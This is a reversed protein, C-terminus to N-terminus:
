RSVKHWHEVFYLLEAGDLMQNQNLDEIGHLDGAGIVRWNQALIFLDAWDVVGDGNLDMPVSVWLNPLLGTHLPNNRYMPWASITTSFGAGVIDWARIRFNSDCFIVEPEDDGDFDGVAPCTTISASVQAFPVPDAGPAGFADSLDGRLAYVRGEDTAVIIEQVGDSVMESPHALDAAVPSVYIHQNNPLRRSATITGAADVVTVTGDMAAAVIFRENPNSFTTVIPSAKLGSTLTVPFGPLVEGASSVAYLERGLTGFVIELGPSDSLDCVAPSGSVTTPVDLPFGALPIGEPSVVVLRDPQTATKPVLMIIEAESDGNVDAVAPSSYLGAGGIPITQITGNSSLVIVINGAGDPVVIDLKGDGNFDHLAASASVNPQVSAFAVRSASISGDRRYFRGQTDLVYIAGDFAVIVIELGEDGVVDGVAPSSQVKEGITVPFGPLALGDGKLGYLKGDDCGVFLESSGDGTVDALTPCSFILNGTAVPFNAKERTVHVVKVTGASVVTLPPTNVGDDVIAYLYYTGSPVLNLRWLYRTMTDESLGDAILVGGSPSPVTNYYLSISANNERDHAAWVIEFIDSYQGGTELSPSVFSFTPRDNRVVVSGNSYSRTEPYLLPDRPVDSDRIVGFVRYRGTPVNRVNWIYTDTEDDESINDVILTGVFDDRESYYLAIQADNDPDSDAWTIRVNYNEDPNVPESPELMQITPVENIIPNLAGTRISKTSKGTSYILSVDPAMYVSFADGRSVNKSTRIVVYYDPGLDSGLDTDPIPMATSNPIFDVKFAGPIGEYAYNSLSPAAALSVLQDFPDFEGVVSLPNGEQHVDRYLAVGSNADRTLDALDAPTFGEGQPLFVVSVNRIFENRGAIPSGDLDNRGDWVNIGIVPKKPGQDADEIRTNMQTLDLLQTPISGSLINTLVQEKGYPKVAASGKMHNTSLQVQFKDDFSLNSSPRLVLFYDIGRNSYNATDRDDYPVRIDRSKPRLTLRYTDGVKVIDEASTRVLEIQTDQADLAGPVIGDDFYLGVGSYQGGSLSLLDSKTPDISLQFGGKDVFEVVFEHIYEHSFEAQYAEPSSESHEWIDMNWGLVTLPIRDSASFQEVRQNRFTLDVLENFVDVVIRMPKTLLSGHSSGPYHNEDFVSGYKTYTVAGSNVRFQFELGNPVLHNTRITVFMDDGFLVGENDNPIQIYHDYTACRYNAGTCPCRLPNESSLGFGMGTALYSGSATGGCGPGVISASNGVVPWEAARWFLAGYPEENNMDSTPANGPSDCYHLEANRRLIMNFTVRFGPEGTLDEVIPPTAYVSNSATISPFTYNRRYFPIYDDEIDWAGNVLGAPDGDGCDEDILGDDDDDQNNRIEEDRLSGWWYGMMDDSDIGDGEETDDDMFLAVGSAFDGFVEDKLRDARIPRFHEPRVPMNENPSIIDFSVTRLVWGWHEGNALIANDAGYDHMDIGFVPTTRSEIGIQTNTIIDHFAFFPKPRTVLSHIREGYLLDSTNTLIRRTRLDGQDGSILAVRGAMPRWSAGPLWDGDQGVELRFTNGDKVRDSTRIVVFYDAGVNGPSTDDEPLPQPTEPTLVVRWSASGVADTSSEWRINELIVLQDRETGDFVGDTTGPMDRYLAVGSSVQNRLLPNLMDPSFNKVDAFDVTVEAIAYSHIRHGWGNIGLIATPPSQQLIPHYEPSPWWGPTVLYNPPDTFNVFKIVDGYVVKSTNSSPYDEEFYELAVPAGSISQDIAKIGGAPIDVKFADDHALISSTRIVIFFDFLGDDTAAPLVAADKYMPPDQDIELTVEFGSEETLEQWSISSLPVMIDVEGESGTPNWDFGGRTPGGTDRYLAVGSEDDLTLSALDDFTLRGTSEDQNRFRVTIQQLRAVGSPYMLDLGVVAIPESSPMVLDSEPYRHPVPTPTPTPPIEEDLRSLVNYLNLRGGGLKGAHIPNLADINDAFHSVRELLEANRIGPSAGLIVAAAGAVVPCAMSTGSMSDYLSSFGFEPFMPVTSLINVGPASVDVYKSSYNSFYALYDNRDTAAVGLVWNEGPPGDNCVPSLPYTDLDIGNNGAACIININRRNLDQFVRDVAATYGGGLSLNIVNAGNDACYIIGDLIISYASGGDDSFIQATMIKGRWSVGTVGLANNSIAAAIGAVHTGHEINDDPYGDGDDDEGDPEPNVDPNNNIFDWGHIDDIYGNNDDDIGNGPIEGPNVWLRGALDPHSTFTGSDVVGIIVDSHGYGIDWAEECRIRPLHYQQSYLPDNPVIAKSYLWDPTALEVSPNQKLQQIKVQVSAGDEIHYLAQGYQLWVKGVRCQNTKAVQAIYDSSTGVPFQVIVQGPVAPEMTSSYENLVQIAGPVDKTKTPKVPEEGTLIQRHRANTYEQLTRSRGIGESASAIDCLGCVAWLILFGSIVLRRTPFTKPIRNM